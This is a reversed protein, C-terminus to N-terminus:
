ERAEPTTLGTGIRRQLFGLTEITLGRPGSRRYHRWAEHLLGRAGKPPLNEPASQPSPRTIAREHLTSRTRKWPQRCFALLDIPEQGTSVVSSTAQTTENFGLQALTSEWRSQQEHSNFLVLDARALPSEIAQVPTAEPQVGLDLVTPNSIGVLHGLADLGSVLVLDPLTKQVIQHIREPEWALEQLEPSYDGGKIAAQPLTWVIEHGANKLSQAMKWIRVVPETLSNGMTPSAGPALPSPTPSPLFQAAFLRSPLTIDTVILIRRSTQAFLEAIGLTNIVTHHTHTYPIDLHPVNMGHAYLPQGFLRFIEADTRRRRAQLGRRKELLHPLQEVVENVALLVALGSRGVTETLETVPADASDHSLGATQYAPRYDAENWGELRLLRLIRAMLLMLAGPLIRALNEDDYNKIITLLANREFLVWKRFPTLTGTTAHLRHYAIAGPARVVRYGMVWLRWGLDVDEFFAFHDADFGGTELFLDRRVLMAGGCPFFLLASEPNPHAAPANLQDLPFTLGHDKQFAFGHFNMWGEGFDLRNGEWDLMTSGTCVIDDPADLCPQLMARLWSPEVRTDNNLFALYEGTAAEAGVNNGQAFGLNAGTEVIKIQPFHARMYDVSGDASDNDALLLELKDAPYDLQLLSTFCTHLHHKGNYNLVIVSVRPLADASATAPSPTAFPGGTRAHTTSEPTDISM